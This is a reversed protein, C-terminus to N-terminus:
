TTQYKEITEVIREVSSGASYNYNSAGTGKYAKAEIFEDHYLYPKLMQSSQRKRLNNLAKRQLRRVDQATLAMREAITNNDEGAYWQLCLATKEENSCVTDMAMDLANHLEQLFLANESDDFDATANTDPLMDLLTADGDEESIPEDLSSSNNLSDSAGGLIGKIAKKVAYNFYSTLKNGEDRFAMVAGNLAIFCSQKLDELEIGRRKCLDAHKNYYKLVMLFLLRKTKEWLVPYLDTRGNQILLALEENTISLKVVGIYFIRQYSCKM